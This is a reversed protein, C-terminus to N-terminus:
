PTGDDMTLSALAVVLGVAAIGLRYDFSWFGVIFLLTGGVLGIVALVLRTLKM